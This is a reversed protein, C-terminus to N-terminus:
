MARIRIQVRIYLMVSALEVRVNDLIIDLKLALSLFNILM